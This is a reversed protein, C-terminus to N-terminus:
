EGLGFKVFEKIHAFSLTDVTDQATHIYPSHDSFDSEFAFAASYSSSLSFFIFIYSFLFVLGSGSPLYDADFMFQGLRRGHLIIQAHM